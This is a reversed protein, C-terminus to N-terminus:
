PRSGSPPAAVPASSLPAVGRQAVRDMAAEIPIHVVGSARDMWGYSSLQKEEAARFERWDRTGHVQLRPAPPLRDERRQLGAADISAADHRVAGGELFKFLAAMLLMTAVSLIALVVAFRVVVRTSVRDPEVAVGHGSPETTGM